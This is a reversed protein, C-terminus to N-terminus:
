DNASLVGLYAAADLEGMQGQIPAHNIVKAIYQPSDDPIIGADVLGDLFCKAVWMTSDADGVTVRHPYTVHMEFVAPYVPDKYKDGDIWCDRARRRLNATSGMQVKRHSHIMANYSYRRPSFFVRSVVYLQNDM